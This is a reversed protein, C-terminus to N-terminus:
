AIEALSPPFFSTHDTRGGAPGEPIHGFSNASAIQSKWRHHCAKPTKLFISPTTSGPPFVSRCKYLSAEEPPRRGEGGPGTGGFGAGAPSSSHNTVFRLRDPPARM